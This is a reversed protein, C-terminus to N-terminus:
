RTSYVVRSRYPCRLGIAGIERVCRRAFGRKDPPDSQAFVIEVITTRCQRAHIQTSPCSQKNVLVGSGRM